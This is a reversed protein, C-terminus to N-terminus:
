SIDEKASLSPQNDRHGLEYAYLRELDEKEYLAFFSGGKQRDIKELRKAFWIFEEYATKQKTRLQAINSALDQNYAGVWNGLVSWVQVHDLLGNRTVFAVREYFDLIDYAGDPFIVDDKVALRRDNMRAGAYRKRFSRVPEGNFEDLVRNLNEVRRQKREAALQRWTFAIASFGTVVLMFTALVLCWTALTLGAKDDTLWHKLFPWLNTM